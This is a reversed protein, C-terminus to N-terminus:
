SLFQKQSKELRANQTLDRQADITAWDAFRISIGPPKAFVIFTQMMPADPINPFYM